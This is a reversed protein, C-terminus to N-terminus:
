GVIEGLRYLMLEGIRGGGGGKGWGVVGGGGGSVPHSFLVVWSDGQWEHFKIDGNTTEAEFDPATSGLRLNGMTHTHHPPTPPPPQPLHPQQTHNHINLPHNHTTTSLVQGVAM